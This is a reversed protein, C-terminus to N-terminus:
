GKNMTCIKQGGVSLVTRTDATCCDSIETQLSKRRCCRIKSDAHAPYCSECQNEWKPITYKGPGDRVVMVDKGAAVTSGDPNSNM